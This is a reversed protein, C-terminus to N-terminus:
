GFYEVVNQLAPPENTARAIAERREDVVQRTFSSTRACGPAGSVFLLAQTGIIKDVIARVGADELLEPEWEGELAALRADTLEAIEWGELEGGEAFADGLIGVAEAHLPGVNRFTGSKRATGADAAAGFDVGPRASRHLTHPYDSALWVTRVGGPLRALTEVLAHACHPLSAPPVSEMRWHVMAFPARPALAAALDHLRPAYHLRPRAPAPPFIPHRLDWTLVLVAPDSDSDTHSLSSAAHTDPRSLADLISAAIPRHQAHPKLHIHLPAHADLRLAGFKAFCPPLDMTSDTAGVRILVDDNFFDTGLQADQQKATVFSLQATPAEAEVWRRFLDLKVTAARDDPTGLDDTLRELDYYMDFDSKFCAGMRSKGVNPLVLIRDLKQALQLIEMFHIRAKSEQESIRLPLLFRCPAPGCIDPPPPPPVVPKKAEPIRTVIPPWDHSSAFYPREDPDPYIELDALRQLIARDVFPVKRPPDSSAADATRSQFTPQSPNVVATQQKSPSKGAPATPLEISATHRIRLVFVITVLIVSFLFTKYM